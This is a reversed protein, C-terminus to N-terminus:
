RTEKAGPGVLLLGSRFGFGLPGLGVGVGFLASGFGFLMNTSYNDRRDRSCRGLLLM